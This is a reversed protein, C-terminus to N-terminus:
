NDVKLQKQFLFSFDIELLKLILTVFLLQFKVWLIKIDQLNHANFEFAINQFFSFSVTKSDIGQCSVQYVLTLSVQCMQNAAM